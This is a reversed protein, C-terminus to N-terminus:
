LSRCCYSGAQASQCAENAGVGTNQRLGPFFSCASSKCVNKGDGPCGPADTTSGGAPPTSTPAAPTAAKTCCVATAGKVESCIQNGNTGGPGLRTNPVFGAQCTGVDCSNQQGISNVSPCDAQYALSKPTPSPPVYPSAGLCANANPVLTKSQECWTGAGASCYFPGTTINGGAAHYCGGSLCGGGSPCPCGIPARGAALAQACSENSPAGPTATPAIGGPWQCTNFSTNGWKLCKAGLPADQCEIDTTCTGGIGVTLGGCGNSDSVCASATPCWRKNDPCCRTTQAAGPKVYDNTCSYNSGFLAKCDQTVGSASKCVAGAHAPCWPSAACHTAGPVEYYDEYNKGTAPDTNNCIYKDSYVASCFVGAQADSLSYPKKDCYSTVYSKIGGKENACPGSSPGQQGPQPAPSSSACRFFNGLSGGFKQICYQSESDYPANNVGCTAGSVAQPNERNAGACYGVGPATLQSGGGGQSARDKCCRQDTPLYELSPCDAPHMNTYGAPCVAPVSIGVNSLLVCCPNGNDCTFNPNVTTGGQKPNTPCTAQSCSYSVANGIQPGVPCSGASQDYSSCYKIKTTPNTYCNQGQYCHGGDRCTEQNNMNGKNEVCRSDDNLGGSYWFCKGGVSSDECSSRSSYGSCATSKNGGGGTKFDIIGCGYKKALSDLQDVSITSPNLNKLDILTRCADGGAERVKNLVDDIEGFSKGALKLALKGADKLDGTDIACIPSSICGLPTCFPPPIICAADAVPVVPSNTVRLFIAFSAIVVLSVLFLFKKLM